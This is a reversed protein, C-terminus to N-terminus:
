HQTYESSFTGFSAFSPLFSSFYETKLSDELAQNSKYMAYVEQLSQYADTNSHFHEFKNAM